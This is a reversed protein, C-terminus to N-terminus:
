GQERLRVLSRKKEAIMKDRSAKGRGIDSQNTMIVLKYGAMHLERLAAETVGPFLISWADPGKKFLSTNALCGDYDFAAVLPSPAPRPTTEYVMLTTDYWRWGDGDDQNPKIGSIGDEHEVAPRKRPNPADSLVPETPKATEEAKEVPEAKARAARKPTPPKAPEVHTETEEAQAEVGEDDAVAESVLDKKSANGLRVIATVGVPLRRNSSTSNVYLTWNEPVMTPRISVRGQPLNLQKRVDSTGCIVEGTSENCGVLLKTEAVEEAKALQYYGCGHTYPIGQSACLESFTAPSKVNLIKWGKM